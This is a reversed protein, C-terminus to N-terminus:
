IIILTIILGVITAIINNKILDSKQIGYIENSIKVLNMILIFPIFILLAVTLYILTFSEEYLAYVTAYIARFVVFYFYSMILIWGIKRNIFIGVLPLLLILIPRFHSFMYGFEFFSLNRNYKEGSMDWHFYAENFGRVSNM